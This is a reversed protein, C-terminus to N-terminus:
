INRDVVISPISNKNRKRLKMDNLLKWTNKMDGKYRDFSDFHYTKKAQKISSTLANRFRRYYAESILNRKLLKYYLSKNRISKLLADSLWPKNLRKNSVYRVKMPFSKCYIRDLTDIFLRTNVNVDESSFDFTLKQCESM